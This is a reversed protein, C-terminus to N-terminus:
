GNSGERYGRREIKGVGHESGQVTGIVYDGQKHRKMDNSSLGRLKYLFQEKTNFFQKFSRICCM